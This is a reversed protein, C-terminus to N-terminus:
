RTSNRIAHLLQVAISACRKWLQPQRVYQGPYSAFKIINKHEPPKQSARVILCSCLIVNKHTKSAASLSSNCGAEKYHWRYTLQAPCVTQTPSMQGCEWLAARRWGCLAPHMQITFHKQFLHPIRAYVSNGKSCNLATNYGWPRNNSTILETCVIKGMFVNWHLGISRVSRDTLRTVM